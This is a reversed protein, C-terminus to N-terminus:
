ATAKRRRIWLVLDAIFSIAAVAVAVNEISLLLYAAVLAVTPVAEQDWSVPTVDAFFAHRTVFAIAFTLFSVITLKISGRM